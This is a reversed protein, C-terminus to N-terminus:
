VETKEEDVVDINEKLGTQYQAANDADIWNLSMYRKGELAESPRLGLATRKENEFLGGTPSLLEIMKITQDVTMFILDKPYLEIRNDLAKERSTFLKKTFAQSFALIIPELTKQYFSNYQAQTFDGRVIALPVGFFRLIKDDVFALTKDDVIETKRELPIYEAKLDIPLIGSESNLLKQEFAQLEERLSDKDLYTNYKLVGNVSYSANMAKAVGELLQHNLELVKLLAANDPQGAINGGMFENVSYNYRIHIIDDYPITTDSGNMFYMKVFLEGSPDQLFEVNIPKLPYLAKYYRREQGTNKDIWTDYVPLIFANYNLLLLWATKELFESTTMLPNPENLVDQITSKRPVPDNGITKIHTPRLKKIEDVICRVAQQVVDSAYIDSGFQSYFASFGNLTIAQRSNKPQRHFIKDFLSM